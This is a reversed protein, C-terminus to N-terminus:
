DLDFENLRWIKIIANNNSSYNQSVSALYENNHVTHDNETKNEVSYFALSKVVENHGEHPFLLKFTNADFIQIKKDHSSSALYRNDKSFVLSIIGVESIKISHLLEYDQTDWIKIYQWLAAALYKGNPSYNLTALSDIDSTKKIIQGYKKSHTSIDWININNISGAALFKGDKSLALSRIAIRNNHSSLLINNDNQKSLITNISWIKIKKDTSGSILYYSNADNSFLMSNIIDEHGKFKKLVDGFGKNTEDMNLILINAEDNKQSIALYKADPSFAFASLYGDFLKSIIKNKTETNLIELTSRQLYNMQVLYKGNNSFIIKPESGPSGELKKDEIIDVLYENVIFRLERVPIAEKFANKAEIRSTNSQTKPSGINDDHSANACFFTFATILYSIKYKKNKFEM